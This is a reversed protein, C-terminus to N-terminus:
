GHHVGKYTQTQDCPRGSHCEEAAIEPEKDLLLASFLPELFFQFGGM